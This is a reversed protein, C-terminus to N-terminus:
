NNEYSKEFLPRAKELDELSRITIELDGTGLHGINSVDRTFGSVLDVSDPSLKVTAVICKKQNHLEICAFNKIRKFVFYYKLTKFQVDDGFSILMEKAADFLDVVEQPAAKLTETVTKYITKGSSPQKIVATDSNEDATVSNVLELMLLDDGYHCYRMLEINRNIQSVAHQDYKTFDGAICILRPSSFDIDASVKSGFKKLVLLEFEAKHDMLWDLYFLGQNIVNQNTARKYEIIVPCCNEDIGMSDIRGGHKKGTSYESALFRVGLFDELHREILSQLSKEVAVSQGQIESVGGDIMKFLKIDSM